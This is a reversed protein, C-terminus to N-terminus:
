PAPHKTIQTIGLWIRKLDDTSLGPKPDVPFHFSVSQGPRIIQTDVQAGPGASPGTASGFAETVHVAYTLPQQCPNTFEFTAVFVSVDWEVNLLQGENGSDDAPIGCTDQATKSVKVDDLAPM